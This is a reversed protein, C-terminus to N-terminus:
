FDFRVDIGYTRPEAYVAGAFGLSGFDIGSYLYDRNTINKGWLAVTARARGVDIDSVAIRADFRGVSGDSLVPNFPNLRDLPHFYIRSRYTWDVRALFQGFGVATEYQAGANATTSASYHFRAEDAVDILQNTAADRIIFSKFKRDVYGGTANITVGRVPRALVEAEIGTYTSKGANVTVSSAGGTGALFQSVQLDDYRSHFGTVNIRLKRDLLETKLGAEYSIIKEPDFSGGVSRPNFGGAKYGTAARAYFLVDDTFKYDLSAAWNLQSFKADLRRAQAVPQTQNLDKEDETYRLGGTIGLRDFPRVTVQGFLAKSESDHRYILQPALGVSFQSTTLGPGLPIPAPSALVLSLNQPNNERAKEKFYFAGVVFDVTQGIKGLLNIEQSVQKQSRNNSAGFLEVPTVGLPIFRNPPALIAPSVTFGRLGDNGDLDTRAVSNEWERYGTLSRLTIEDTLDYEVTLTHGTVEDHLQGQNLRLTKIRDRGIVLPNGGLAQSNRLYAIIDPRAAALQFPVSYSKSDNFDFAYDVRFPGGNDFQTAIRFADVNNAGPDRKDPQNLDNAYGSKQKHLYSLKFALGSDGLEGTDVSTRSQFYDFRGYSLIQSAKFKSAPKATIFNVAGGTTNRGYLTGQPGRLVEVRELDVLDFVAGATRGIVVGDVYIGVPSDVTLVPDSEGIGRIHVAINTTSSPTITTTLNPAAASIDSIDAVRRNQLVEATLASVALPTDQLNEARKQATVVIDALGTDNAPAAEPPSVAAEQALSASAATMTWLAAGATLLTRASVFM